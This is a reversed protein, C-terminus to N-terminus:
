FLIEPTIKPEFLNLVIRDNEWIIGNRRGDHEEDEASIADDFAYIYGEDTLAISLKIYLNKQLYRELSLDMPQNTEEDKRWFILPITRGYGAHNFEVKMYIDKPRNEIPADERFLYLNFGEGSRTMDYEDNVILQSTVASVTDTKSTPAWVVPNQFPDYDEDDEMLQAKKKVYKGYLDGSDFFITSYYLLNQTLPDTGDYFLLRLFSQKVRNKQNNIDGDTFGLYGILNSSNVFDEDTYLQEQRYANQEHMDDGEGIFGNGNWTETTSSLHWTDEFDYVTNGSARTRFHLNFTLGTALFVKNSLMNHGGCSPCTYITMGSEEYSDFPRDSTYGCDECVYRIVAPAYKIKELDIFDPIISAKVKKVFLENVQYEQLARKADYDQDFKMGVNLYDMYKELTVNDYLTIIDNNLTFYYPNTCFIIEDGPQPIFESTMSTALIANREMTQYNFFRKQAPTCDTEPINVTRGSVIEEPYCLDVGTIRVLKGDSRRCYVKYQEGKGSQYKDFDGGPHNDKRVMHHEDSFYLKYKFNSGSVIKSIATLTLVDITVYDFYIHRLTRTIYKEDTSGSYAFIPEDVIKRIEVETECVKMVQNDTGYARKIFRLKGGENLDNAKDRIVTLCLMDGSLRLDGNNFSIPATKVPENTKKAIKFTKM